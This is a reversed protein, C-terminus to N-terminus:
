ITYFKGSKVNHVIYNLSIKCEIYYSQKAVHLASASYVRGPMGIHWMFACWVCTRAACQMCAHWGCEHVYVACKCGQQLCAVHLYNFLCM